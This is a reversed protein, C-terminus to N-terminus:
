KKKKPKSIKLIEFNSKGAPTVVEVVDGVKHGMLAQGVPSEDSIRGEMPNAEKTGVIQYEVDERFKRDHVLICLGLAVKNTKLGTVDIIEVNELEKSLKEILLANEAQERKAEDYEANESLDGHSRAEELKHASEVGVNDDESQRIERHAAVSVSYIPVATAAHTLKSPPKKDLEEFSLKTTIKGTKKDLVREKVKVTKKPIRAEAKELKDAAKDAKTIVKQLEPAAREEDTFQLRPSRKSM